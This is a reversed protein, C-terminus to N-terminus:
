LQANCKVEVVSTNYIILEYSAKYEKTIYLAASLNISSSNCGPLKYSFNQRTIAKNSVSLREKVEKINVESEVFEVQMLFM